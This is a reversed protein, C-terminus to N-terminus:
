GKGPATPPLFVLTVGENYRNLDRDSRLWPHDELARLAAEETVCWREGHVIFRVAGEKRRRLLSRRVADRLAGGTGSSGYGHVIKVVRVGARRADDLVEILRRRAEAVDPRDHKINVERFERHM